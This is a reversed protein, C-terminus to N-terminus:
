PNINITLQQYYEKGRINDHVPLPKLEALNAQEFAKNRIVQDLYTYSLQKHELAWASAKELIVRDTKKAMQIIGDCSRYITEPPQGTQFKLAVLRGLAPSLQTAREIYYDPNRSLYHQHTSCLHETKYVYLVKPDYSRLHQAILQSSLYIKVMSRTYVVDVGQGIYQHPVSYYKHDESLLIFNNQQVKHRRYTKIEFLTAPLPKLLLKEESIFCEMRSYPKVQQRTKNYDDLRLKIADNLRVLDFFQENRLRAFVHTYVLNVMREVTAKDKPKAARTPLVAMGYHNSFDQLIQNIGPEYRSAKTVATKMNDPVLMQPVGGM